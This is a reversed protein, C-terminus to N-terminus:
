VAYKLDNNLADYNVKLGHLGSWLDLGVDSTIMIKGVHVHSVLYIM